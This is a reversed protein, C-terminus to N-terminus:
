EREGVRERERVFILIWTPIICALKKLNDTSGSVFNKEGRSLEQPSLYELLHVLIDTHTNAKTHWQRQGQQLDVGFFYHNRALAEFESKFSHRLTDLSDDDLTNSHTNRTHKTSILPIDMVWIILPKTQLQGHHQNVAIFIIVCFFQLLSFPFFLSLYLHSDLQLNSM